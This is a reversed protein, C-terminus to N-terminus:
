GSSDVEGEDDPSQYFGRSSQRMATHMFHQCIAIIQQEQNCDELLKQLLESRSIHDVSGRRLLRPEPSSERSQFHQRGIHHDDTVSSPGCL